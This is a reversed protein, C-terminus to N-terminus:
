FHMDKGFLSAPGQPLLCRGEKCFIARLGLPIAVAFCVCLRVCLRGVRNVLLAKKKKKRLVHSLLMHGSIFLVQTVQWLSFCLNGDQLQNRSPM